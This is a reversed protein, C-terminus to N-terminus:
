INATYDRYGKHSKYPHNRNYENTGIVGLVFGIFGGFVTGALFKFM